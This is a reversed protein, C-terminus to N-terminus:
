SYRTKFSYIKNGKKIIKSNKIKLLPLIFSLDYVLNHAILLNTENKKTKLTKIVNLFEVACDRGIITKIEEDNIKYSLMFPKHENNDTTSEFDFFM